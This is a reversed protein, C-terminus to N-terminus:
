QELLITMAFFSPTATCVLHVNQMVAELVSRATPIASRLKRTRPVAFANVKFPHKLKLAMMIRIKVTLFQIVAKMLLAIVTEM